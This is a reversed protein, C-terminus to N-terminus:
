RPRHFRRASVSWAWASWPQGPPGAAPFEIFDGPVPSRPAAADQAGKKQRYKGTSGGPPVHYATPAFRRVEARGTAYSIEPCSFGPTMRSKHQPADERRSPASIQLSLLIFEATAHSFSLPGLDHAATQYVTHRFVPLSDNAKPWRGARRHHQRVVAWFRRRLSIGRYVGHTAASTRRVLSPM